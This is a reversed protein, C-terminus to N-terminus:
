VAADALEVLVSSSVNAACVDSGAGLAKDACGKLHTKQHQPGSSLSDTGIDNLSSCHCAACPAAIGARTKFVGLRSSATVFRVCTLSM